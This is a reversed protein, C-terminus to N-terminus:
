SRFSVNGREKKHKFPWVCLLGWSLLVSEKTTELFYSNSKQIRISRNLREKQASHPINAYNINIQAM